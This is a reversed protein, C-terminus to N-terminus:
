GGHRLTKKLDEEPSSFEEVGFTKRIAQAMTPSMIAPMCKCLFVHKVGM